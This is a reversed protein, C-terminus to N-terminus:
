FLPCGLTGNGRGELRWCTTCMLFSSYFWIDENREQKISKKKFPFSLQKLKSPFYISICVYGFVSKFADM